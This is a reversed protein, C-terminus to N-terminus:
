TTTARRKPRLQVVMGAIAFIAWLVVALGTKPIDNLMRPIAVEKVLPATLASALMFGGYIATLVSLVLRELFRALLAGFLAAFLLVLLRKTPDVPLLQPLALAGFVLLAAGLLTIGLRYLMLILAAVLLGAVVVAAPRLWAPELPLLDTRAAVVHAGILFGTLALAARFASYGRFCVILGALVLLLRPLLPELSM